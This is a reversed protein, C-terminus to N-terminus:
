LREVPWGLFQAAEADHTVLLVTKGRAARDILTLAKRALAEDMGTLPEDLLLVDFPALLARLLAVRRKQGGSLRSAPVDLDPGSLDLEACAREIEKVSLAPATLRLNGAANLQPCLRDEQFVVSVRGPQRISGADAKELGLIMRLLTTKGRGSPAMLVAPGCFDHSYNEFLVLDGFRKSLNKVEIVAPGNM